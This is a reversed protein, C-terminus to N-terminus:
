WNQTILRVGAGQLNAQFYLAWIVDVFSFEDPHALTFEFLTSGLCVYDTKDFDPRDRSFRQQEMNFYLARMKRQLADPSEIPSLFYARKTLRALCGRLGRQTNVRVHWHCSMGGLLSWAASRRIFAFNRDEPIVLWLDSESYFCDVTEKILRIPFDGLSTKGGNDSIVFLVESDSDSADLQIM